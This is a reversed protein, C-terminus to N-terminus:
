TRTDEPDNVFIRDDSEWSWWGSRHREDFSVFAELYKGDVALVTIMEGPRAEWEEGDHFRVPWPKTILRMKAM